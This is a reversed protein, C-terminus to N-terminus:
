EGSPSWLCRGPTKGHARVRYGPGPGTIYRNWFGPCATLCCESFTVRLSLGNPSMPTWPHPVWPGAGLPLEPAASRSSFCFLANLLHAGTTLLRQCASPAMYSPYM